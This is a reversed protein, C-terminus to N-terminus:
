TKCTKWTQLNELNELKELSRLKGYTEWTKWTEWAKKGVLNKEPEVNPGLRDDQVLMGNMAFPIAFNRVTIAVSDISFVKDFTYGHEEIDKFCCKVRDPYFRDDYFLHLWCGELRDVTFWRPDHEGSSSRYRVTSGPIVPAKGGYVLHGLLTAEGEKWRVTDVRVLRGPLYVEESIDEVERLCDRVSCPAEGRDSDPVPDSMDSVSKHIWLPFVRARQSRGGCKAHLVSQVPICRFGADEAAKNCATLIGHKSDKKLLNPVNELLIAKVGLFIGMRVSELIQESRKDKQMKKKGADSLAVCSPGGTLIDAAGMVGHTSRELLERRFFDWRVGYFVSHLVAEPHRAEALQLLPEEWEVIATTVAGKQNFLVSLAQLGAWLEVM